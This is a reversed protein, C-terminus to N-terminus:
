TLSRRLRAIRRERLWGAVGQPLVLVCAVLMAGYIVMRLETSFRLVEPLVSMVLGAVVVGWFTGAGGLIVMILWAQLYYFDLISPDVIRLYFVQIGGAVATLAGGIAFAFLKYPTPSVVHALAM